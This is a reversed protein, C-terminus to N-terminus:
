KPARFVQVWRILLYASVALMSVSLFLWRIDPRPFSSENAAISGFVVNSMITGGVLLLVLGFVMRQTNSM